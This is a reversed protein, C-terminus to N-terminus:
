KNALLMVIGYFAVIRAFNAVSIREDRGHFMRTSAMTLETPCHRYINESCHWYHRTDTNGLMLGPAVLPELGTFVSTAHADSEDKHEIKKPDFVTRVARSIIQYGEAETSSVPAPELPELATLRVRSDRIAAADHAMVSEVTECPHIRHNVIATAVPPVVNSKVGGNSLTVATTTRLLAASRPNRLMLGKILPTTIWSNAFILRYPFLPMAPLLAQFLNSAPFMHADFPADEIKAIARSLIGITTTSPPVSSHGAESEVRLEVNLHGKEGVCVVAVPAAVGPFFETLLFLGEDLLWALKKHGTRALVDPLAKALHLAGDPGGLEEDHGFLLVVTRSPKFGRKLLHEVAACIGVVGQKDDIAGRGWVYGDAITGSYPPFRWESADPAAVVDMHGALAIPPLKDDSGRWGYMLSYESVVKRELTAHMLPFRTQLLTHFALFAERAQQLAEPSPEAVADSTASASGSESSEARPVGCCACAKKGSGSTAGDSGSTSANSLLSANSGDRNEFSITRLRLSEALITALNESESQVAQIFSLVESDTVIDDQKKAGARYANLLMAGVICVASAALVKGAHAPLAPLAPLALSPM